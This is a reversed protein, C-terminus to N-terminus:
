WRPLFRGTRQMYLRYSEGFTDILTEEEKGVLALAALWYGLLM